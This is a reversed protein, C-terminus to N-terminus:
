ASKHRTEWARRFANLADGEGRNKYIEAALQSIDPLEQSASFVPAAACACHDHAKFSATEESNYLSGKRFSGDEHKMAPRSALLACFACPDGDTVRYWGLAVPDHRVTNITTTRGGDLAIRTSTGLTTELAANPRAVDRQFSGPGSYGFAKDLWDQSPTPAFKILSRPAPSLTAQERAARYTSAAAQASQGHYNRVLLSMARLWGPWTEDLRKRDLMPWLATVDRLLQARIALQAVRGATAVELATRGPHVEPPATTM